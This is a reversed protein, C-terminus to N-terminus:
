DHTPEKPQVPVHSAAPLADVAADVDADFVESLYGRHRDHHPAAIPQKLTMFPALNTAWTFQMLCRLKEYREANPKLSDIERQMTEICGTAEGLERALNEDVVAACPVATLVAQTLRVIQDMTLGLEANLGM